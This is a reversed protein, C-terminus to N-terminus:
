RKSTYIIIYPTEEQSLVLGNDIADALAKFYFKLFLDKFHCAM